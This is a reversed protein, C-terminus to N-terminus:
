CGIGKGRRMVGEWQGNRKGEGARFSFSLFFPRFNKGGREWLKDMDCPVEQLTFLCLWKCSNLNKKDRLRRPRFVEGRDPDEENYVTFDASFMEKNRSLSYGVQAVAFEKNPVTPSGKRKKKETKIPNSALNETEFIKLWIGIIGRWPCLRERFIYDIGSRQPTVKPALADVVYLFRHLM